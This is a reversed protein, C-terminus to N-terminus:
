QERCSLIDPGFCHEGSEEVAEGITLERAIALAEERNAANVRLTGYATWEIEYTM